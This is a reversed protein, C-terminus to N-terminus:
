SQYLGLRRAREYFQGPDDDRRDTRAHAAFRRYLLFSRRLREDISLALHERLAQAHADAKFEGLRRM